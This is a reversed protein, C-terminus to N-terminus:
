PEQSEINVQRSVIMCRKGDFELLDDYHGKITISPFEQRPLKQLNIVFNAYSKYTNDSIQDINVSTIVHLTKTSKLAGELRKTIADRGQLLINMKKVQFLAESTFLEGYEKIPGNDRLAPYALITQECALAILKNVDKNDNHSDQAYSGFSCVTCLIFNLFRM